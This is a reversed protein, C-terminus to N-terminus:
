KTIVSLVDGNKTCTFFKGSDMLYQMVVATESETPELGLVCVAEFHGAGNGIATAMAVQLATFETGALDITAGSYTRGDQDRVCAGAVSGIRARAGRALTVLKQDEAHLQEAM